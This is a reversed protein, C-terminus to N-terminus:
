PEDGTQEGAQASPLDLRMALVYAPGRAVAGPGRGLVGEFQVRLTSEGAV